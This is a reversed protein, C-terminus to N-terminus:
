HNEELRVSGRESFEAICFYAAFNQWTLAPLDIQLGRLCSGLRPPERQSITQGNGLRDPGPKTALKSAATGEKKKRDM